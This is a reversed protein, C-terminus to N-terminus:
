KKRITAAGIMGKDGVTWSLGIEVPFERGTKNRALLKMGAGMERVQPDYMYSAIHNKHVDRMAEPLLMEVPQDYMESRLYGFMAQAKKNVNQIMGEHNIVVIAYFANEFFLDVVMEPEILSDSIHRLHELSSTM